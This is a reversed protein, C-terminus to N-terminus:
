NSLKRMLSLMFFNYVYRGFLASFDAESMQEFLSDTLKAENDVICSDSLLIRRFCELLEYMDCDSASLLVLMGAAASDEDKMVNKSEESSKRGQEKSTDVLVKCLAQRIKSVERLQKTSPARVLLFTGKKISGGDTAHFEIPTTLNFEFEKKLETM